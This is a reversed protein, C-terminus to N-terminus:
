RDPVEVDKSITIVKHDGGERLRLFALFRIGIVSM